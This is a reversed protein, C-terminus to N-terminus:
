TLLLINFLFRTATCLILSVRVRLLGAYTPMHTKSRLLVSM